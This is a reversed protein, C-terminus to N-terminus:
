RQSARRRQWCVLGAVVALLGLGVLGLTHARARALRVARRVVRARVWGRPLKSLAYEILAEDLGQTPDTLSPPLELRPADAAESDLEELSRAGGELSALAARLGGRAIEQAVRQPEVGLHEALLSDRLAAIARRGEVDHPAAELAANCETDLSMSRSTLNASGVSVFVDDVIIVKAHVIIAVGDHVPAVVRLRDFRDAGRLARVIRQRQAGMTAQELRTREERPMVIVIEPGDPEQLTRALADGISQATIFQNEIYLSHEAAAIAELYMREIERTPRYPPHDPLTRAIGIRVDTWQPALGEPWPDGEVALDPLPEGLAYRWRLRALEHVARAARGDFVIQADHSPPYPEGDALRRRPNGPAHTRDDWRAATVDLGGLFAVKGDIVVLKQHHSAGVPHDSAFALQVRPGAKWWFRLRPLLERDLTFLQTADWSLIRVDLRPNASTLAALLSALGLAPASGSAPRLIAESHVDWGVITITRRAREMSSVLREFYEAGDVLVAVRHAHEVRGCTRGAALIRRAASGSAQSADQDM